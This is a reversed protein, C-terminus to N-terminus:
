EILKNKATNSILSLAEDKSTLNEVVQTVHGPQWGYTKYLTLKWFICPTRVSFSCFYWINLFPPFVEISM